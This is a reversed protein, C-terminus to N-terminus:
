ELKNTLKLVFIDISVEGGNVEFVISVNAGSDLDLVLTFNGDGDTVDTDVPIGDVLAVVRIGGQAHAEKILTLMEKFRAFKSDKDSGASVTVLSEIRGNITTQQNNGSENNDGGGSCSMYLAAPLITLVILLLINIPKTMNIVGKNKIHKRNKICIM